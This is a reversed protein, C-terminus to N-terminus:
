NKTSGRISFCAAAGPKSSSPDPALFRGYVAASSTSLRPRSAPRAQPIFELVELTGDVAKKCDEAPNSISRRVSGGGACHFVAAPEGAHERLQRLTIDCARWEGLGWRRWDSARWVGQEPGHGLGSSKGAASRCDSHLYATRPFGYAGTVLALKGEPIAMREPAVSTMSPVRGGCARPKPM